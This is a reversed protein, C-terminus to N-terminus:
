VWYEEIAILTNGVFAVRIAIRSFLKAVLTLRTFKSSKLSEDVNKRMKLSSSLNELNHRIHLFSDFIVPIKGTMLGLLSEIDMPVYCNVGKNDMVRREVHDQQRWNFVAGFLM